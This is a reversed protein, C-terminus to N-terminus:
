RKDENLKPELPKRKPRFDVHILVYSEFKDLVSSVRMLTRYIEEAKADEDDDELDSELVARLRKEKKAENAKKILDLAAEKELDKGSRGKIRDYMSIDNWDGNLNQEFSRM